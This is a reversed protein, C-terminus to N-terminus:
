ICQGVISGTGRPKAPLRDKSSKILNRLIMILPSDSSFSRNQKERNSRSLVPVGGEEGINVRKFWMRQQIPITLERTHEEGGQLYHLTNRVPHLSFVFSGKARFM